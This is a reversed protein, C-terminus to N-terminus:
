YYHQILSWNITIIQRATCSATANGLSSFKRLVIETSNMLTPKPQSSTRKPTLYELNAWGGVLCSAASASCAKGSIQMQFFLSKERKKKRSVRLSNQFDLINWVGCHSQLCLFADQLQLFSIYLSVPVQTGQGLDLMLNGETAGNQLPTLRPKLCSKGGRKTEQNALHEAWWSWFGLVWSQTLGLTGSSGLM